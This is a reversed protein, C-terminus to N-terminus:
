LPLWSSRLPQVQAGTRAGPLEDILLRYTRERDAAPAQVLARVVQAGGAALSFIAPAVIVDTVPVLRDEGGEQTWTFGRVQLTVAADGRNSVTM